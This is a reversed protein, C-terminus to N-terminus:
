NENRPKGEEAAAEEAAARGIDCLWIAVWDAHDDSEATTSMILSVGGPLERNYSVVRVDSYDGEHRILQMVRCHENVKRYLQMPYTQEGNNWQYM